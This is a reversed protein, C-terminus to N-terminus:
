SLLITGGMLVCYIAFFKLKRSLAAKVLVYIAFLGVLFAAVSGTFIPLTLSAEKLGDTLKLLLAGLVAPISLLFSFKIAEERDLGLITGASITSGSRSIGPMIALGQVIGIVLAKLWGLPTTAKDKRQWEGAILFLATIFLMAGVVKINLFQQEFSEKFLFGILATPISGLIVLWFLRRRKTFLAIIDRWFYVLVAFLTGIHLFINFLIKPEQYGFYHHLIVLHGSSSIPLFETLGQVVGSIIAEIYTM